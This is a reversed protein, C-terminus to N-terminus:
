RSENLAGQPGLTWERVIDDMRAAIETVPGQHSNRGSMLTYVYDAITLARDINQEVLLVTVDSSTLNGIIEALRDADAPAVGATPEDFILLKAGTAIGRAVELLRQQGGSLLGANVKLLPKILPVAECAADVSRRKAQHGHISWAGMLLNEYVSMETFVTHEQPIFAVGLGVRDHCAWPTINRGKLTVSGSRAPLLGAICRLLTSKGSGNPGLVLTVQSEHCSISVGHVINPGRGYGTVIEEASLVANSTPSQEVSM